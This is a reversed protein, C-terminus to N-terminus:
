SILREALDTLILKVFVRRLFGTLCRPMVSVIVIDIVSESRRLRLTEGEAATLLVSVIDSYRDGVALLVKVPIEAESCTVLVSVNSSLMVVVPVTDWDCVVERDSAVTESMRVLLTVLDWVTPDHSNLAVVVSVTVFELSSVGEAFVYM